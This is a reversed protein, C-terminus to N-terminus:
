ATFVPRGEKYTALVQLDRLAAPPSSSASQGSM